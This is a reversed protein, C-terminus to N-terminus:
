PKLFNNWSKRFDIAKTDGIAASNLPRQYLNGFAPRIQNAFSGISDYFYHEFNNQAYNYYNASRNNHSKKTKTMISAAAKKRKGNACDGCRGEHSSTASAIAIGYNRDIENSKVLDGIGQHINAIHRSGNRKRSVRPM